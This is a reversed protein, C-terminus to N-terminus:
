VKIAVLEAELEKIKSKQTITEDSKVALNGMRSSTAKSFIKEGKPDKYLGVMQICALMCFRFDDRSVLNLSNASEATSAKVKEPSFCSLARM